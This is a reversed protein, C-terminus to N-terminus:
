KEAPTALLSLEIREYDYGAEIVRVLRAAHWRRDFSIMCDMEGTFTGRELLVFADTTSHVLIADHHVDTTGAVAVWANAGDGTGIRIRACIGTNGLTQMGISLKGQASRSLRRIVSLQWDLSDIRRYGILMGVRGWGGHSSATAGLGSASIDSLTWRETMQRDGELEFKQLTEMPSASPSASSQAALEAMTADVSGFRVRGFLKHDYPTNDEYSLSGGTKAYETAAIMRRVQAVGHTVLIEGEAQDRRQRRQPPEISWHSLLLELLTGYAAREIRQAGLWEPLTHTQKFEKQLGALKAYANSVGFFRMGPRPKLGKVWRRVVPSAGPEVVFPTAERPADSFQYSGAFRRLILELVAIQPPLLNPIPAADLMLALLLEREVSSQFGCRPYLEVLTHTAGISASWAVLGFLNDWYGSDVDRCRMRLLTKFRALAATSRCTILVADAHASEGQPDNNLAELCVRYGAYLNRSYRSLALWAPDSLERGRDDSILSQAIAALPEQAREDLTKLAHRLRDPPIELSRAQEFQEGIAELTRAPLTTPLGDIFNRLGVDSGLSEPDEEPATFQKALWKFMRKSAPEETDTDPQSQRAVSSSDYWHM